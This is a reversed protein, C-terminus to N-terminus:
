DRSRSSHFQPVSFVHPHYATFFQFFRGGSVRFRGCVEVRPVPDGSFGGPLTQRIYPEGPGTSVDIPFTCDEINFPFFVPQDHPDVVLRLFHKDAMDQGM